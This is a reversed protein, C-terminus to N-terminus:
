NYSTEKVREAGILQSANPSPFSDSMARGKLFNEQLPVTVYRSYEQTTYAAMFMPFPLDSGNLQGSIKIFTLRDMTWFSLM